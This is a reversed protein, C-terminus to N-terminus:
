RSATALVGAHTRMHEVIRACTATDAEVNGSPSALRLHLVPSVDCDSGGYLALGAADCRMAGCALM